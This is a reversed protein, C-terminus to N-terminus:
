INLLMLIVDNVYLNSNQKHIYKHDYVNYM